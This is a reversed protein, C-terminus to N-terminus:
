PTCGVHAVSAADVASRRAALLVALAARQSGQRPTANNRRALADRETRAADLPDSKAGIRRAPRKPRDLELVEEGEGHLHRTLSAGYTGTGEIAWARVGPHRDALEVLERYGDPDASVTVTELAAGTGAAVVPRGLGTGSHTLGAAAAVLGAGVSLGM